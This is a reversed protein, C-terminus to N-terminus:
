NKFVIKRKIWKKDTEYVGANSGSVFNMKVMNGLIKYDSLIVDDGFKEKLFSIIEETTISDTYRDHKGTIRTEQIIKIIDRLM